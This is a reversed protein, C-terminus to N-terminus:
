LTSCTYSRHETQVVEDHEVVAVVDLERGLGLVDHVLVCCGLITSKAPLYEFDVAVIDVLDALSEVLCLLYFALWGEDDTLADHALTGQLSVTRRVLGVALGVTGRKTAISEDVCDLVKAAVWLVWELYEGLYLFEVGFTSLFELGDASLTVCLLFCPCVSIRLLSCLLSVPEAALSRLNVPALAYLLVVISCAACRCCTQADKCLLYWVHNTSRGVEGVGVLGVAEQLM